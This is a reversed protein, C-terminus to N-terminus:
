IFTNIIFRIANPLNEMIDTATIGYETKSEILLDASLSHLYVASIITREIEGSQAIFSSLVGSLVDGVGFKAMGPNGTTNIFIEEQPNFILTPAGKLILYSGTEEVFRKGYKLLDENLENIPINILESFEKIHPTIVKNRLDIKKYVGALAYVADADIVFKKNKNKTVIERVADITEKNRGLGPGITLCDAWDIKPQLEEINETSLFGKFEDFYSTITSEGLKAFAIEKISEPFVLISAGAGSKLVSNASLCAAGPYEHSGAITLVKGATYKHSDLDKVPLGVFADEPEILYENVELKNFYEKGIGISGKKVEGSHSYGKGFFLGRKFEALTVTLDADFITEGWGTDVNLGTPIDVAIKYSSFSNVKEVISKVPEKLGGKSGTGLISDFIYDCDKLKNIDTLSSYFIIKSENNEKLINKLIKFNILADGKLSDEDGLSIVVVKYGSNIFHRALTFGDGGNNGKGCIIGISDAVTSEKFTQKFLEFIGVAANEMLVVGPLGLQDIAYRDAERIQSSTFTPIM